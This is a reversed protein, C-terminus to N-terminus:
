NDFISSDGQGDNIDQFDGDDDAAVPNSKRANEATQIAAVIDAKKSAGDLDIGEKEAYEKLAAVSMDSLGPEQKVEVKPAARKKDPDLPDKASARRETAKQDQTKFHIEDLEMEDFKEYLRAAVGPFLGDIVPSRRSGDPQPQAYLQMLREREAKSSRPIDDTIEIENVADTGHLMQLVHVESPTVNYKTVQYGADGGLNLMISAVQM